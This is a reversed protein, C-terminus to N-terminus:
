GRASHGRLERVRWPTRFPHGAEDIGAHWRVGARFDAGIGKTM